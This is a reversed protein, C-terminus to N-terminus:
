RGSRLYSFSSPSASDHITVSAEVATKHSESQGHHIILTEFGHKEESGKRNSNRDVVQGHSLMVRWKKLQQMLVDHVERIMLESDDYIDGQLIRQVMDTLTLVGVPATADDVDTGM